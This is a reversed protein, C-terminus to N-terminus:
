KGKGSLIIRLTHIMIKFDLLLSANEIYVLDYQMREIMEEITSAYGFQVMGWSTLGPKVKLLYRYYPTLENIKDIFFKREPRPGVLSMDGKIINWLQPLEDLRWKRMTKGWKTIREDHDSSLAPGNKEADLAMSRFKYIMFKKGKLGVREQNYFIKGSSSIWTRIFVFIILPSLFVLGGVAVVIDIMRKINLQWSPLLSTQIDILTAGFVNSTKVAGSLIDLNNPVIKISVDKELLNSVLQETLNKESSELAIIVQQIEQNDIVSEIMEIKGLLTIWKSLGNKAIGDTTVFGVIHYGIYAFNKDIEKFAKVALTGNGVILSNFVVKGTLLHQKAIRLLIIRGSFILLFHILLGGIFINYYYSYNDTNLQFIFVFFIIIMGILCCILTNTFENLRSKIYISETYNGSLSFFVLWCIPVVFFTTNLLHADKLITTFNDKSNELLQINLISFLSWAIVCAIGDSIVYWIIHLGKSKM